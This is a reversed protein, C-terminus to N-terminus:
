ESLLKYVNFTMGYKERDNKMTKIYDVETEKINYFELLKRDIEEQYNKLIELLKPEKLNNM